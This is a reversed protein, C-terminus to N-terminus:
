ETQMREQFMKILDEDTMGMNQMSFNADEALKHNPYEQIFKEYFFRAQATDKNLNEECFGCLFLAEPSKYFAKHEDTVTRFYKVALNGQGIGMSVEGAKFLMDIALSDKDSSGQYYRSYERVLQIGAAPDAKEDSDAFLIAEMSDIRALCKEQDTLPKKGPQCAVLGITLMSLAIATKKM